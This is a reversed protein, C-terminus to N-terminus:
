NPKTGGIAQVSPLVPLNRNIALASSAQQRARSRLLRHTLYAIASQRIIDQLGEKLVIVPSNPDRCRAPNGIKLIAPKSGDARHWAFYHMGDGFFTRPIEPNAVLFATQNM